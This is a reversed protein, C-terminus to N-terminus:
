IRQLGTVYRFCTCGDVYAFGRFESAGDHHAADILSAFSGAPRYGSGLGNVVDLLSGTRGGAIWQDFVTLAFMPGECSPLALVTSNNDSPALGAHKLMGLCYAASAKAVADMQAANVDSYPSWGPGVAGHLQSTPQALNQVIVPPAELSSLGYRPNYGQQQAVNMFLYDLAVNGVFAVHDVCDSSFKLVANQAGSSAQALQQATSGSVALFEVDYVPHGLAKFAPATANTYAARWDARDFTVVGIRPEKVAACRAASSWRRDVWHNRILYSAELAGVRDLSLQSPAWLDPVAQEISSGITAAVSGNILPVGHQQLCRALAGDDGASYSVVIDMHTDATFRQCAAEVQDAQSTTSSADVAYYTPRLEVRSGSRANLAKIVAAYDAQSDTTSSSAGAAKYAQDLGKLYVVGLSIVVKGSSTRPLATPAVTPVGSAPTATTGVGAGADGVSGSVSTSGTGGGGAAGPLSQGPAASGDPVAFGGDVAAGDTTASSTAVTSGCATALAAVAAM